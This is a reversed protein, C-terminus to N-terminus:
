TPTLLWSWAAAAKGRSFSGGVAWRNLTQITEVSSISKKYLPYIEKELRSDFFLIEEFSCSTAASWMSWM